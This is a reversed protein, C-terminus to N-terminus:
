EPKKKSLPLTILLTLALIYCISYFILVTSNNGITKLYGTVLSGVFGGASNCSNIIATGVAASTGTLFLSPISWFPGLLTRSGVATLLVGVMKLTLTPAIAAMFLGTAGVVISIVAHYKREMTKDSHWGWFVMAVAAILYPGAILWGVSTNSIKSFDKIITPLWMALGDAVVTLFFYIIGLRWVRLNSFMEAWKVHHSGKKQADEKALEDTLWKKEEQTLWKADGPKDPLYFLTVVGLFIAPLGELVFLWRWGSLGMLHMNDIIWTSVPASIINSVPLSLMFLAIVSARHREPFWLTFYFIIGPFFGAEALGLFFRFAALHWYNQAFMVLVTVIGWTIIIRAIWKRAGYRVLLINSPVEFFFYPLYFISALVGFAASSIGLEQNMTLAAFGFNTRDIYNIIYLLFLFPLLRWKIKKITGEGINKMQHM